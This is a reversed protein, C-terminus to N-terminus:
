WISGTEYGPRLRTAQSLTLSAIENRYSSPFTTQPPSKIEQTEEVLARRADRYVDLAEAQRGSRYLALMLQARFGERLPHASVLEKLEGILDAHKGLALDGGHPPRACSPAARRAARNRDARVAYAFEALPPGRWLALAERLTEAASGGTELARRLQLVHKQAIKAATPPHESWLRSL